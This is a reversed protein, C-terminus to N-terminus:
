QLRQNMWNLTKMQVDHKVDELEVFLNHFADPYVVYEKNLSSSNLYIMKAGEPEVLKDKEGQLVLLPTKIDSMSRQVKECGKLLLWGTRAKPGGHWRLTDKKVCQVYTKDRTIYKDDNDDM